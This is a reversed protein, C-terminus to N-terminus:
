NVECGQADAQVYISEAADYLEDARAKARDREVQVVAKALGQDAKAVRTDAQAWAMGIMVLGNVVLLLVRERLPAFRPHPNPDFRLRALERELAEIHRANSEIARTRHTDSM